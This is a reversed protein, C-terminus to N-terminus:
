QNPYDKYLTQFLYGFCDLKPYGLLCVQHQLCRLYHEELLKEKGKRKMSQLFFWEDSM